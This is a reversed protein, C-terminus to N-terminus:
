KKKTQKQLRGAKAVAEGGDKTQNRGEKLYNNQIKVTKSAQCKSM